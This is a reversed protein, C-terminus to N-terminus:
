YRTKTWVNLLVSYKTFTLGNGVVRMEPFDIGDIKELKGSVFLVDVNIKIAIWICCKLLRCRGIQTIPSFRVLINGGENEFTKEIKM